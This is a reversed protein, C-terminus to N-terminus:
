QHIMIQQKLHNNLFSDIKHIFLTGSLEFCLPYSINPMSLLRESISEPLKIKDGKCDPNSYALFNGLTAM